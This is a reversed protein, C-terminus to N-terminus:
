SYGIGVKDCTLGAYDVLSPDLLMWTEKNKSLAVSPPESLTELVVMLFHNALNPVQAYSALDGLLSATFTRDASRVIPAAPNVTLTQSTAITGGPLTSTVNLAIDFDMQYNGVVYGQTAAAHM